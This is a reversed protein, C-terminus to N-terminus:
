CFLQCFNSGFAKPVTKGNIKAFIDNADIRGAQKTDFYVFTSFPEFDEIGALRQRHNEIIEERDAIALFLNKLLGTYGQAKM